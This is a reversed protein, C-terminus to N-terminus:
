CYSTVSSKIRNAMVQWWWGTKGGGFLVHVYIPIDAYLCATIGPADTSFEVRFHNDCIVDYCEDSIAAMCYGANSLTCFERYRGLYDKALRDTIAM